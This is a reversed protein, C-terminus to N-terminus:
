GGEFAAKIIDDSQKKHLTHSGTAPSASRSRGAYQLKINQELSTELLPKIYEWAGMNQHEEQVWFCSTFGKYKSLLEEVKKKDFPYLQEIRLIAIDSAKRKEREQFLEYYMKGTVIFLKKPHSPNLPDDLVTEFSKDTFDNLSSKCLPARLFAKPTFVVLPKKIPNLVQRRLLHFLQAPTTPNVVRMNYDGCSQLFREMRASSHEPGQGEYGHPLLLTLASTHGWKQECSSIYQDVVIQAGNFFDGFQAEWIVLADKRVLSYGFDFGLVAYESLPSNFISCKGKAGEIHSLPFYRQDNVQDVWMAHRHSFTGRRSDQGSLRIDKGEFALSAYALMEGMGWDINDQSMMEMREKLLREIKPHLKFEKPAKCISEALKLIKEKSVATPILNFLTEKQFPVVPPLVAKSKVSELAKDLDEKFEKEVQKSGEEDLVAEDMLQRRYLSLISPKERIAKYEIPQTFAPEDGENHGYKRYCTLDIFVDCAFQARIQAAIVAVRICSEPDEADVHFVPSGFSKAIDTCYRTSRSDKPLTTFGIQNNVVIHITGGTSYGKLGRLQMTEYVVGQGAIAADGHILIPIVEKPDLTEQKARAIGEVVPDVSELHSPNASLTVEMEKGLSTKVSGSFGKHYKVDGTGEFIESSVFDEFEHFIYAYSKNLINALVNLRGRHAMGIVVEKTGLSAGTELIQRLIPILTEGGELSFRKQGVYKTHLFSEFVEAKLLNHLVKLKDEKTLDLPFNPEISKQIFAELLPNGLGMYEIGIKSCYTKKLAEIMEKLPAKPVKLFGATPFPKDLEEKKFGLNELKLEEIEEKAEKHLPNFSALRHGFIRYAEILHFIRLDDSPAAPASKAFDLGEFFYQWSSDISSPDKLYLAYMEEILPLNALSAYSFKQNGM